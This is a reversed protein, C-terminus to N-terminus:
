QACPRDKLLNDHDHTTDNAATVHGDSYNFERLVGDPGLIYQAFAAAPAFRPDSAVLRDMNAYDGSAVGGVTYTSPYRQDILDAGSYGVSTHSHVIALVQAGPGWDSPLKFRTEPAPLGAALAEAVTQGPTLPGMKIEGNVMYILAGYERSAYDAKQKILDAIQTAVGDVQLDAQCQQQQINLWDAYSVTSGGVPPPVPQSWGDWLPVLAGYKFREGTVVIDAEDALDPRQLDDTDEGEGGAIADLEDDM